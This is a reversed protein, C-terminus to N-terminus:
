IRFVCNKIFISPTSPLPPSSDSIQVLQEPTSCTPSPDIYSLPTTVVQSAEKLYTTFSVEHSDELKVLKVEDSCCSTTKVLGTCCCTNDGIGNVTVSSVENFCYQVNLVMGSSTSLYVLALILAIFKKM